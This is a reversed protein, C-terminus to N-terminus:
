LADPIEESSTRLRGDRMEWVHDATAAAEESHTVLLVAAGHQTAALRLLSLVQAASRSDLNGTPEDALLLPPQMILARAIAARQLEGGSLAHPRAHRRHGLGVGALLAEARARASRGDERSLLAPLTVNELVTLTPLLNFFQYVIGIRERRLQTLADDRLRSLATGAVYIEGRTPLDIGAILNLLTSKGSGSRGMIAAFVGRGLTFSVDRVAVIPGAASPFERRVDVLRLAPPTAPVGPSSVPASPTEISM